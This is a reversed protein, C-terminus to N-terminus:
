IIDVIRLRLEPINRFDSKELNFILNVKKKESLPKFDDERKFFAIAIIKFGKSNEFSIQLHNKDKGFHKVELIDINEFMFIPKPNSVGFPAFKNIENWLGWSVDDVSLIKDVWVVNEEKLDSLKKFATNLADPLLHIKDQSISFGGAGFHGGYEDFLFSVEKMLDVVSVSSSRCSGKITKGDEKGWLFVPKKYSESFSNAVLGLLSPKWNPNGLVLVDLAVDERQEIIKKIEKTMSLVLGKREENIKHLHVAMETSLIEDKSSLMLFADKPHGMRSAVNIRPTILFGIDDENLNKQNIKLLSFLKLLGYRSSKQLVKLGFYALNRNEGLLPVMDSLTALGAMDLFWKEFGVPLNNKERFIEFRKDLIIACIIKFVVGAGCLMKEPYNCNEQKPNIVAFANPLSDHPIHHDTVIVDIKLSNAFDIMKHDSIGCDITILLGVGESSLTKLADENLGYGEDNRHPIYVTFNQYNIKHFFDSFIVAGPIGDADYDSFIGIKENRDMAQFIRDLVKNIDKFLFPDFSHRSYDPNLFINADDINEIGRYFLLHKTLDSLGSLSKETEESIKERIKYKQM